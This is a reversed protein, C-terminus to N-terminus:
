AAQRTGIRSIDSSRRRSKATFGGGGGALKYISVGAVADTVEAPLGTAVDTINGTPSFASTSTTELFMFFDSQLRSDEQNNVVPTLGSPVDMPRTDHGVSFGYFLCLSHDTTPTASGGNVTTSNTQTHTATQDLTTGSAPIGNRLVGWTWWRGKGDPTQGTSQNPAFTIVFTPESNITVVCRFVAVGAYTNGGGQAILTDRVWTNGNNDSLYALIPDMGFLSVEMYLEDGLSPVNDLTITDTTGDRLTSAAFQFDGSQAVAKFELLSTYCESAGHNWIIDLSPGKFLQIKSAAAMYIGAPAIELNWGDYPKTASDSNYLSLFTLLLSGHKQVAIEGANTVTEGTDSHNGDISAGFSDAGMVAIVQYSFDSGSATWTLADGGVLQKVWTGQWYGSLQEPASVETWGAPGTHTTPGSAAMQVAVWDGVTAGSPLTVTATFGTGVSRVSPM